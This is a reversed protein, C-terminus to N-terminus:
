LNVRVFSLCRSVRQHRGGKQELIYKVGRGSNEGAVSSLTASDRSNSTMKRSVSFSCGPTGALATWAEHQEPISITQRAADKGTDQAMGAAARIGVMCVATQSHMLVM